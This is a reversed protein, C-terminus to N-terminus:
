FLWTLSINKTSECSSSSFNTNSLEFVIEEAEIKVSSTRWIVAVVFTCM